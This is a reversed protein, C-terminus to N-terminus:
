HPIKMVAVRLPLSRQPREADYAILIEEEKQLRKLACRCLTIQGSHQAGDVEYDYTLKFSRHEEGRTLEHWWRQRERGTVRGRTALGTRVLQARRNNVWLTSLGTWIVALGVSLAGLTWLFVDDLLVGYLTVMIAVATLERGYLAARNRWVRGRYAEIIPYDRPPTRSLSLESM